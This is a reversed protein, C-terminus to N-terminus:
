VCLSESTAPCGGYIHHHLASVIILSAFPSLYEIPAPKEMEPVYNPTLIAAISCCHRAFDTPARLDQLSIGSVCFCLVAITPDPGSWAVSEM